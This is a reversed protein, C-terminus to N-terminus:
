QNDAHLNSDTIIRDLTLPHRCKINKYEKLHIIDCLERGIKDFFSEYDKARNWDMQIVSSIDYGLDELLILLKNYWEDNQCEKKWLGRTIDESFIMCASYAARVKEIYTLESYDYYRFLESYEDNYVVKM